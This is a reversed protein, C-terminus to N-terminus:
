SANTSTTKTRPRMTPLSLEHVDHARPVPVPTGTPSSSSPAPARPRASPLPRPPCQVPRSERAAHGDDTTMGTNTQDGRGPRWRFPRHAYRNPYGGRPAGGCRHGSRPVPLAGSRLRTPTGSPAGRLPMTARLTTWAESAMLAEWARGHGAKSHKSSQHEDGMVDVAHPTPPSEKNQFLKRANTGSPLLAISPDSHNDSGRHSTNDDWPRARSYTIQQDDAHSATSASIVRM